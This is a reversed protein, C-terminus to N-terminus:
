KMGMVMGLVYPVLWVLWVFISFRHFTMQRKEDGKLLVMTAWVAHIAMLVIAIAGTIGHASIMVGSREASMRSMLFTGASDCILGLYFFILHRTKLLKARRESWVGITYFILALTIFIIAGMLVTTM